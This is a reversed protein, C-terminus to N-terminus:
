PHSLSPPIRLQSKGGRVASASSSSSSFPRNLFGKTINKSRANQIIETLTSLSAAPWMKLYFYSLQQWTFSHSLPLRQTHPFRCPTSTHSLRVQNLHAKYFSIWANNTVATKTEMHMAHSVTLRLLTHAPTATSWDTHTQHHTHTTLVAEDFSSSSM